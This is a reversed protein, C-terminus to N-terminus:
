YKQNRKSTEDQKRASTRKSSEGPEEPSNPWMYEKAENQTNGNPLISLFDSFWPFHLM